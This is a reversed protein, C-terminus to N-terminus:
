DPFLLSHVESLEPTKGALNWTVTFIRLQDTKFPDPRELPSGEEGEHLWKLM